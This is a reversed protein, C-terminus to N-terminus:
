QMKTYFRSHKEHNIHPILMASGVRSVCQVATLLLKEIRKEKFM